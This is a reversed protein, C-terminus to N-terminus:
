NEVEKVNPSPESLKKKAWAEFPDEETPKNATVKSRSAPTMGFETMFRRMEEKASKAIALMPHPYQYGKDTECVLDADVLQKEADVWRAWSTCYAALAGRDCSELLGAAYLESSVRRWERRAEGKVFTPCKPMVRDSFQVEKRLPRKGPNGELMKLKTPKPPRGAM